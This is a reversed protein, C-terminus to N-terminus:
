TAQNPVDVTIEDIIKGEHTLKSIPVWTVARMESQQAKLGSLDFIRPSFALTPRRCIARVWHM